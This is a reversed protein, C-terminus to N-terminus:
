QAHISFVDVLHINPRQTDQNQQALMNEQPIDIGIVYGTLKNKTIKFRIFQRYRPLRAGGGAENNHGNFGLSVALYWGFWICTMVAGLIGAWFLRWGTVQMPPKDWSLYIISVLTLVGIVIWFILLRKAVQKQLNLSFEDHQKVLFLYPALYTLVILTAVIVTIEVWENYVLLFFPVSLQLVAHWVGIFGWFRSSQTKLSGGVFVSLLILGIFAVILLTLTVTDTLAIASKNTGYYCFGICTSVLAASILM